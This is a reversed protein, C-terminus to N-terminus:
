NKSLSKTPLFRSPPAGVINGDNTRAFAKCHSSKCERCRWTIVGTTKNEKLKSYEFGLYTLVTNGKQNTSFEM